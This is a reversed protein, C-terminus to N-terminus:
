REALFKQFKRVASMQDRSLPEEPLALAKAVYSKYTRSSAESMGQERCWVQYEQLIQRTEPSLQSEYKGAGSGPTASLRAFLNDFDM